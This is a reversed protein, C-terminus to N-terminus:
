PVQYTTDSRRVGTSIYCPGMQSLVLGREVTHRLQKNPEWVLSGLRARSKALAVRQAVLNADLIM